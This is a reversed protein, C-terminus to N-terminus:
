QQPAEVKHKPEIIVLDVRRNMRRGEPTANDAVPRYPGYGAVSIKAPPFNAEDLLLTLVSTARATSLQWNSQFLDTHIPQDDSHGEVRIELNHQMLVEATRKLQVAAGPLLTADGSNFFGFDRLSIILGESTQQVVIEHKDIADGLVGELQTKLETTNFPLPTLAGVQKPQPKAPVEPPTGPSRPPVNLGLAEFGAHIGVSVSQISQKQIRSFAFLVIFVALLLTVFDAYSLLWRDHAPLDEVRRSARRIRTRRV